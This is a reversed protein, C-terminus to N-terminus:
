SWSGKSPNNPSRRYIKCSLNCRKWVWKLVSFEASPTFNLLKNWSGLSNKARCHFVFMKVYIMQSNDHPSVRHLGAWHKHNISPCFDLYFWLLFLSFAPFSLTFGTWIEEEEADNISIHPLLTSGHIPEWSTLTVCCVLFCSTMFRSRLFLYHPASLSSYDMWKIGYGTPSTNKNLAKRPALSDRLVIFRNIM